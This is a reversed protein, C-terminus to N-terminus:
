HSCCLRLDSQLKAAQDAGENKAAKSDNRYSVLYTRIKSM